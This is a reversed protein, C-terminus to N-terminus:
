PTKGRHINLTHDDLDRKCHQFSVSEGLIDELRLFVAALGAIRM